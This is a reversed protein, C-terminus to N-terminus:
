GALVTQIDLDALADRGGLATLEVVTLDALCEVGRSRDAIVADLLLRLALDIGLCPGM